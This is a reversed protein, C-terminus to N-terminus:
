TQWLASFAWPMPAAPNHVTSNMADLTQTAMAAEMVATLFRSLWKCVSQTAGEGRGGCCEAAAKLHGLQKVSGKNDHALPRQQEQVPVVM